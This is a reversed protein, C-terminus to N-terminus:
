KVSALNTKAVRADLATTRKLSEDHLIVQVGDATTRVDLEIFDSGLEMAKSFAVLTNEPAIRSAGRHASIMPLKIARPFEQGWVGSAVTPLLVTAFILWLPIRINITRVM